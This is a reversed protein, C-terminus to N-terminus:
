RNQLSELIIWGVVQWRPSLNEDDPLRKGREEIRSDAEGDQLLKIERTWEFIWVSFM